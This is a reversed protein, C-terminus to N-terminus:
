RASGVLPRPDLWWKIRRARPVREFLATRVTSASASARTAMEAPVEGQAFTAVSADAALRRLASSPEGPLGAASAARGAFESLTETSTRALGAAELVESTDAWEAMVRAASGTQSRRARRRGLHLAPVVSGWLIAVAAVALLAKVLTPLGRSEEETADVTAEDGAPPATTVPATDDEAPPATTSTDGNTPAATTDEQDEPRGTYDTANPAGRGPTPEFAVWGFGHLYVEPWAHAHEDRVHYVGDTLEGPTFGVAVRAPLGVLRALVAYAGAFQECYGRRTTLLFNELARADHGPRANLDYRFAGKHFHDQLARAREYPTRAGAVIRSAEAQVRPSIGPLSLYNEAIEPPAQAPAGGLLEPTLQPVASRVKYTLGDTTEEPTIISATDRNYSVDDIDDLQQPRFAVPLWISALATVSFRQTSTAAPLNPQLPEDTGIGGRTERYTDSSTWTNGDFDDLSTLRWYSRVDSRVTFVELGAREVLRGRIDVLPSVTARNTPGSQTRNKYKIVPADPAPLRPDLAAGALLAIASLLAANRVINGRGNGPRGGFWAGARHSDALGQVVVFALATVVFLAVAWTRHRENGLAATFLFLTFAPIIAEFTGRLRFAAWDAMFASLALAVLTALVFGPLVPAPAKAVAFVGRAEGLAELAAGFTGPLPVGYATTHGLLTWSAVLVMAVASVAAAVVTPQGSRRCWWCIAHVVLTTAVVPVLFSADAFLRGLGLAVSLTLLTVAITGPLAPDDRWSTATPATATPPTTGAAPRVTDPRPPTLTGTM